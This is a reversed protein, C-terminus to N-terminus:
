KELSKKIAKKMTFLIIHCFLTIEKPIESISFIKNFIDETKNLKKNTKIKRRYHQSFINLEIFNSPKFFISPKRHIQEEIYINDQIEDSNNTIENIKREYFEYLERILNQSYDFINASDEVPYDLKEFIFNKLKKENIVFEYINDKDYVKKTESLYFNNDKYYKYFRFVMFLTLICREELKMVKKNYYIMRTIISMEQYLYLIILYKIFEFPTCEGGKGEKQVLVWSQGKLIIYLKEGKDGEKCIISNKQYEEFKLQTSLKNILAESNLLNSPLLLSALKENKLFYTKIVIIDEETKNQKLLIYKLIEILKEKNEETHRKTNNILLNILPNEHKIEEKKDKSNLIKALIQIEHELEQEKKKKQLRYESIYNITMLNTKDSALKKPINNKINNVDFNINSTIIRKIDNNNDDNNNPYIDNDTKETKKSNLLSLKSEWKIDQLSLTNSRSLKRM